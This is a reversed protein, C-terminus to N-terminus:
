QESFTLLTGPSQIVVLVSPFCDTHLAKGEYINLLAM